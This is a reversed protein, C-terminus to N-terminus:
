NVFDVWYGLPLQKFPVGIIETFDWNIVLRLIPFLLLVSIILSPFSPEYEIIGELRNKINGM